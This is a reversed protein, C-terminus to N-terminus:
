ENTSATEHNGRLLFINGPYKLKFCFLLSITELSLPGRDVYDSTSPLQSLLAQLFSLLCPKGGLFLYNTNPPFGLQHFIRLLDDFQGHTDGCVVVPPLLELFVPQSQFMERAM